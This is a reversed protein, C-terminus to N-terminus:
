PHKQLTNRFSIHDSNTGGNGSQASDPGRGHFYLEFREANFGPPLLRQLERIFDEPLDIDFIQGSERDQFHAHEQLNPCFRTPERECNVSRVLGCQVLAELCNYVTALSISPNLERSRAFVEDATPHDREQLLVQFVLERLRTHRIGHRSLADDLLAKAPPSLVM